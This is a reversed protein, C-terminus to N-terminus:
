AISRRDLDLADEVESAICRKSRIGAGRSERPQGKEWAATPLSTLDSKKIIKFGWGNGGACGM